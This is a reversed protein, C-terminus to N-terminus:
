VLVLESNLPPFYRKLVRENDELMKELDHKELWKAKYSRKDTDFKELLRKADPTLENSTIVLVGDSEHAPIVDTPGSM